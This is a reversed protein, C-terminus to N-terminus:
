ESDIGSIKNHLPLKGKNELKYRNLWFSEWKKQNDKETILSYQIENFDWDDREKSKLRQKINGMGIYVIEKSINLYRYIGVDNSNLSPAKRTTSNEFSPHLYAEWKGLALKIEFRRNEAKEKLIPHLWENTNILGRSSIKLAVKKSPDKSKSGETALTLSNPKDEHHFEFGLKFNQKDAYIVCKMGPSLDAIRSTFSSFSICDRSISLSPTNKFDLSKSVPVVEWM